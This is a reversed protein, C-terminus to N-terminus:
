LWVHFIYIFMIEVINYQPNLVFFLTLFSLTLTNWTYNYILSSMSNYVVVDNSKTTYRRRTIEGEMLGLRISNNRISNQSRNLNRCIQYISYGEGFMRTLEATEYKTYRGVNRKM